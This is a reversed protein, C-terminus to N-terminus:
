WATRASTTAISRLASRMHIRSTLLTALLLGLIVKSGSTVVAYVFTNRLGTTLSPDKLFESFNDLGIFHVDFLTWIGPSAARPADCAAVAGALM